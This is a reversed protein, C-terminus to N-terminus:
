VALLYPSRVARLERVDARPGSFLFCEWGHLYFMSVDAQKTNYYVFDTQIGRQENHSPKKEKKNSKLRPKKKYRGPPVDRCNKPRSKLFASADKHQYLRKKLSPNEFLFIPSYIVARSFHRSLAGKVEAETSSKPSMRFISLASGLVPWVCTRMLRTSAM